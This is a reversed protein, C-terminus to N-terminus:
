GGLVLWNKGDTICLDSSVVWSLGSSSPTVQNSRISSSQYDQCIWVGNEKTALLSVQESDFFAILIKKTSSSTIDTVNIAGGTQTYSGIFQLTTTNASMGTGTVGLVTNGFLIQSASLLGSGVLDQVSLAFNTTSDTVQGPDDDHQWVLCDTNNVTEVVVDSLVSFEMYNNRWDYLSGSVQGGNIYATKGEAIDKSTATADSTNTGGACEHTGTLKYGNVYATKGLAIDEATATADSTDKGENNIILGHYTAM